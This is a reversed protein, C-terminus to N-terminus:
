VPSSEHYAQLGAMSPWNTWAGNPMSMSM